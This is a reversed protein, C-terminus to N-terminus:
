FIPPSKIRRRDLHSIFWSFYIYSWKCLITPNFSHYSAYSHNWNAGFSCIILIYIYILCGYKCIIGGGRSRWPIIYECVYSCVLSCDICKERFIFLYVVLTFLIHCYRSCYFRWIYVYLGCLYPFLTTRALEDLPTTNRIKNFIFCSGEIQFKPKGSGSGIRGPGPGSGM